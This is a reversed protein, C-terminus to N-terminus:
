RNVENMYPLLHSALHEMIVAAVAQNRSYGDVMIHISWILRGDRQVDFTIVGTRGPRPSTRTTTWRNGNIWRALITESRLM